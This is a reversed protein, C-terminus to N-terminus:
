TTAPGSATGSASSASPTASPSAKACDKEVAAQLREQAEVVTTAADAAPNVVLGAEDLTDMAKALDETSGTGPDLTGVQTALRTYYDLVLQADPTADPPAAALVAAYYTPGENTTVVTFVSQARPDSRKIGLRDLEDSYDADLKEQASRVSACDFAPGTSTPGATPTGSSSVPSATTTTPAPDPAEDGAGCGTLLGAAGLACCLAARARAPTIM